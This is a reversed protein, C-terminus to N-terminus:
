ANSVTEEACHLNTGIIGTPGRKLWGCVYLGQVPAASDGSNESIVRGGINPVVGSYSLVWTRSAEEWAHIENSTSFDTLNINM